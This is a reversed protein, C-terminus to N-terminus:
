ASRRAMRSDAGSLCNSSPTAPIGDAAGEENPGSDRFLVRLLTRYAADDAASSQTWHASAEVTM